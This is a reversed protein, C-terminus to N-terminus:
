RFASASVLIFERGKSRNRRHELRGDADKVLCQRVIRQLEPAIAGDSIAIDPLMASLIASLTEASSGRRFPAKRTLLEYLLLGFQDIDHIAAVHPHDISAALTAEQVFRERRAAERFIDPAIFKIAAKRKLKLDEALYVEGMGGAGLRELIKYHGVMSGVLPDAGPNM